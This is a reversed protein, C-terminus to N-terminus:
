RIYVSAGNHDIIEKTMDDSDFSNEIYLIGQGDLQTDEYSNISLYPDWAVGQRRFM